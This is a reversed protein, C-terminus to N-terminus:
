AVDERRPSAESQSLAQIEHFPLFSRGLSKATLMNIDLRWNHTKKKLNRLQAM